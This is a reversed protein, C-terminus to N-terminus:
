EREELQKWLGHLRDSMKAQTIWKVRIGDGSLALGAWALPCRYLDYPKGTATIASREIRLLGQASLRKVHRYVTVVPVGTSESIDKASRAQAICAQLVLTAGEDQLAALVHEQQVEM